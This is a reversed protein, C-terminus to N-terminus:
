PLWRRPCRGSPLDCPWGAKRWAGRLTKGAASQKLSLVRLKMTMKFPISGQFPAINSVHPVSMQHGTYKSVPMARFRYRLCSGKNLVAEVVGRCASAALLAGRRNPGGLQAVTFPRIITMMVHVLCGHQYRAIESPKSQSHLHESPVVNKPNSYRLMKNLSNDQLKVSSICRHHRIPGLKHEQLQGSIAPFQSYARWHSLHRIRALTKQSLICLQVNLNEISPNTQPNM